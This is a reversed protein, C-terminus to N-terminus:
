RGITAGTTAAALPPEDLEAGELEADELGAGELLAGCLPGDVGTGGVLTASPGVQGHLAGAKGILFTSVGVFFRSDSGGM